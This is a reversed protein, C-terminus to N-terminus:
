EFVVEKMIKAYAEPHRYLFSMQVDRYHEFDKATMFGHCRVREEEICPLNFICQICSRRLHCASCQKELKSYWTNYRQAIADFDLVVADDTLYGLAFQHGIRECPLIKGNVTVFVKKSFPVCTVTPIQKEPSQKGFLLENYDRYTFDSYQRLFLATSKYTPSTMFLDREIESYHESDFLSEETNRFMHTFEVRKEPRIGMNNLEGISPTKGYKVKFFDYISEVSNRNHLVANFNVRREFFDPYAERLREVNQVVRNFSPHGGKDVRYSDGWENGDLSILLQFDHHVLFDMYRDLLIANTTMSFTFTRLDSKLVTECHGVVSEIFPMNMLPEGGYFSIFINKQYSVNLPSQWLTHLYDLLLLAKQDSLRQNERADYDDYLEGYGCYKCRLNCADTVEFTVQPTNALAYKVYNPTIYENMKM